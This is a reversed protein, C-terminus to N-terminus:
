LNAHKRLFALREENKYLTGNISEQQYFWDQDNNFPYESGWGLADKVAYYTPRHFNFDDYSLANRCLGFRKDFWESEEGTELIKLIERCFDQLVTYM